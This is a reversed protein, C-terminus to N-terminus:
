YSTAISIAFIFHNWVFGLALMYAVPPLPICLTGPSSPEPVSLDLFQFLELKETFSWSTFIKLKTPRYVTPM